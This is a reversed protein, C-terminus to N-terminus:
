GSLTVLGDDSSVHIDAGHTAKNDHLATIVRADLTADKVKAKASDYVHKASDTARHAGDKVDQAVDNTASRTTGAATASLETASSDSAPTGASAAPASDNSPATITTQAFAIPTLALAAALAPIGIFLFGKSTMLCAGISIFDGIPRHSYGQLDFFERTWVEVGFFRTASFKLFM